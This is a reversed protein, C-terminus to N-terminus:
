WPYRNGKWNLFEGSQELTTEDIRALIHKVSEEVSITARAGGMDTQVWGPNIVVSVIGEGRLDVALSKSMMNLAVKSMRYAYSGGSGNDGISGMGSTIHVLKKGRGRRVHPLLAVCVRLAGAANTNFTQLVNDLALSEALRPLSQAPGGNVGANNIVLDVAADGLAAAFAAVSDGDSVDLAHVRAGTSRLEGAQDPDRAGGDVEYGRAILQRALELGIGRNAGTVVARM